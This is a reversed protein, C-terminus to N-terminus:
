IPLDLGGDFLDGDDVFLSDNDGLVNKDVLNKIEELGSTRQFRQLEQLDDKQFFQSYAAPLTNQLTRTTRIIYELVDTVEERITWHVERLLISYVKLGVLGRVRVLLNNAVTRTAWYSFRYGLSYQIMLVEVILMGCNLLFNELAAQEATSDEPLRRMRCGSDAVQKASMVLPILNAATKMVEDVGGLVSADLDIDFHSNFADILGEIQRLYHRAETPLEKPNQATRIKTVATEDIEKIEGYIDCVDSAADKGAAIVSDAERVPNLFEDLVEESHEIRKERNTQRLWDPLSYGSAALIGTSQLFERRQM